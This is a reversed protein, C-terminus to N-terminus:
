YVSTTIIIYCSLTLQLALYYVIVKKRTCSEAKEPTLEKEKKKKKGLQEDRQMDIM